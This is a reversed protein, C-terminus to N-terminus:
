KERWEYYCDQCSYYGFHDPGTYDTGGCMPCKM